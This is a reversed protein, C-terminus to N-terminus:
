NFLRLIFRTINGIILILTTLKRVQFICFWQQVNCNVSLLNPEHHLLSVTTEVYHNRSTTYISPRISSFITPHM